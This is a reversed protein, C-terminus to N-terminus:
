DPHCFFSIFIRWLDLLNSFCGQICRDVKPPLPIFHLPSFHWLHRTLLSPGGNQFKKKLGGERKAQWFQNVIFPVPGQWTMGQCPRLSCRAWHRLLCLLYTQFSSSLSLFLFTVDDKTQEQKTELQFRLWAVSPYVFVVSILSLLPAKVIRDFWRLRM